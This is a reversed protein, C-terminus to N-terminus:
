LSYAEEFAEQTITLHKFLDQVSNFTCSEDSLALKIATLFLEKCKRKADDVVCSTSPNALVSPCACPEVADVQPHCIFTRGSVPRPLNFRCVTNNKKCTKFTMDNQTNNFLLLM